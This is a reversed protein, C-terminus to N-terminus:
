DTAIMTFVFTAESDAYDNPNDYKMATLAISKVRPDVLCKFHSSSNKWSNIAENIDAGQQLQLNECSFESDIGFEKFYDSFIMKDPTKHSYYEREIMDQTRFDTLKNIGYDYIVPQTGVQKRIENIKGVFLSEM